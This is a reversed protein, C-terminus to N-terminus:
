NSNEFASVLRLDQLQYGTTNTQLVEVKLLYPKGLSLKEPEDTFIVLYNGTSPYTQLLEDAESLLVNNGMCPKCIAEQPCPSCKYQKAIYGSVEFKGKAPALRRFDAVSLVEARSFQSFFLFSSVVLIVPFM